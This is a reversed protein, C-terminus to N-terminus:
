GATSKRKRGSKRENARKTWEAMDAGSEKKIDEDIAQRGGKSWYWESEEMTLNVRDLLKKRVLGKIDDPAPQTAEQANTPVGNGVIPTQDPKETDSPEVTPIDTAQTTPIAEPQLERVPEGSFLSPPAPIEAVLETFRVGNVPSTSAADEEKRQLQYLGAESLEARAALWPSLRIEGDPGYAILSEWGEPLKADMAVRRYIGPLGEVAYIMSTHFIGNPNGAKGAVITEFQMARRGNNAKKM